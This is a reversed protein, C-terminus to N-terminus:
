PLTKGNERTVLRALEELHDELVAKFRFMAQAREPVPTEAWGPLAAKAVAVAQGIQEPTSYPLHAIIEGNGPDPIEEVQESGPDEYRGAIVAPVRTVITTM